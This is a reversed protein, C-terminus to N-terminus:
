VTRVAFTDCPFPETSRYGTVFWRQRQEASGHTWAEPSVQGQAQEQIRDDGIAAAADLGDRIDAETLEEIFRHRGCGPGM